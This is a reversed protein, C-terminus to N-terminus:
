RPKRPKKTRPKKAYHKKVAGKVCGSCQRSATYREGRLKPHKTCPLGAYIHAGYERAVMRAHLDGVGTRVVDDIGLRKCETCEMSRTYREGRNDPHLRCLAGLFMSAGYRIARCRGVYRHEYHGTEPDPRSM